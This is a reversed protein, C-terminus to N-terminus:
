TVVGYLGAHCVLFKRAVLQVLVEELVESELDEWLSGMARLRSLIDTFTGPRTPIRNLVLSRESDLLNILDEELAIQREESLPAYRRKRCPNSLPTVHPQM